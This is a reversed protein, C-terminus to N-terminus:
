ETLNEARTANKKKDKIELVGTNLFATLASSRKYSLVRTEDKYSSFKDGEERGRWQATDAGRGGYSLCMSKWVCTHISVDVYPDYVQRVVQMCAHM